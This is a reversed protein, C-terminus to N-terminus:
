ASGNALVSLGKAKILREDGTVLTLDLIQATAALFRDAPDKHPLPLRPAELAIEHTVPAERLPAAKLTEAVWEAVERDLDVRGRQVLIVLEWISIPSLWLENAPDELAKVVRRSLREPNLVSWIWIHTDLLLKV